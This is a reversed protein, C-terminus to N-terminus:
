EEFIKELEAQRKSLWSDLEAVRSEIDNEFSQSQKELENLGEENKAAWKDLKAKAEEHDKYYDTVFRELESEFKSM